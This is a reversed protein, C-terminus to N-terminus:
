PAAGVLEMYLAAYSQAVAAMPFNAEMRARGRQGLENRVAEPAALLEAMAEALARANGPPIVRGCGDVLDPSDGVATALCPIGCALAEGLANSFGENWSTSVALDLAATLRPLDDRPGLLHVRGELGLCRIPEELASAGPCVGVGALLAHVPKPQAALAELLLRHNKEPHLRAYLGVLPTDPALGLEMRVSTRASPDPTFRELDFGNPIFQCRGSDYGWQIHQTMATRANFLIRDPLGSLAAGLRIVFRTTPRYFAPHDLAIRINWVVFPRHSLFSALLLAALNGHYMWGQVVHPRWTDTAEALLRIAAAGSRWPSPLGLCITPLGSARLEHAWPGEPGLALIRQDFRRHPLATAVRHLMSEAGGRQLGTIIHLIRLTM